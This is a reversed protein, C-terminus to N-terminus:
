QYTRPRGRKKKTNATSSESTRSTLHTSDSSSVSKSNYDTITGHSVVLANGANSKEALTIDKSKPRGRQKRSISLIADADNFLEKDQDPLPDFYTGARSLNAIDSQRNRKANDKLYGDFATADISIM